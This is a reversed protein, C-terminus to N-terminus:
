IACGIKKYREGFDVVDIKNSVISTWPRGEKWTYQYKFHPWIRRTHYQSCDRETDHIVILDAVDKFRIAEIARREPPLHDVFVVGAPEIEVDDWDSVKRISHMPSRFTREYQYYTEDSEYTVLKRDAAKCVWHLLPTSSQGGGLEIVKGNTAQLAVLLTSIHTTYTKRPTM